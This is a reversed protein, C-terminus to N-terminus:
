SLEYVPKILKNEILKEKILIDINELNLEKIDNNKYGALKAGSVLKIGKAISLSIRVSSFSGPGLNVIVLFNENVEVKHKQLFNFITNVLKDNNRTKKPIKHIFFKNNFSLALSDNKGTINLILFNKITKKIM